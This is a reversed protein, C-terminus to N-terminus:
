IVIRTVKYVVLEIHVIKLTFRPRRSLEGHYCPPSSSGTCHCSGNRSILCKMYIGIENVSLDLQVVVRELGINESVVTVGPFIHKVVVLPTVLLFSSVLFFLLELFSFQGAHLLM